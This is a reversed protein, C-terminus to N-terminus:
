IYLFITQRAIRCSGREGTAFWRTEGTARISDTQRFGRQAEVPSNCRDMEPNGSECVHRFHFFSRSTVYPVTEHGMGESRGRSNVAAMVARVEIRRRDALGADVEGVQKRM